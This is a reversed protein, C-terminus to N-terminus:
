SFPNWFRGGNQQCLFISLLLLVITGLLFLWDQQGMHQAHYWSRRKGKGFRRLAMAQSIVEVKELTAFVLSLLLRSTALLRNPWSSDAGLTYGRAEQVKKTMAFETQITPLYRLTLSFAYAIQYPVGLRNLGAALQSPQTTLLFVLTLPLSFAYKLLVLLEYFLQQSTLAYHGTGLLVTKDAFLKVGYQPAFVYILVLNLIAFFITLWVIWAIEAWRIRSRYLAFAACVTLLVLFRADFSLMGAVTLFILGLLKARATLRHFYSDRKQYGFLATM